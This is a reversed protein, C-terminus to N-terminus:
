GAEDLAHAANVLAVHSLAQPTNGLAEGTAPLWEEALLGVDSACGLAQEILERGRDIEGARIRCEALWLTCPIFTGDQAGTFRRLHGDEGLERELTEYTRRLRPDGADLMGYLPILLVSADLRDTGFIGVFAGREENWADELITRRARDRGEAWRGVDAGDGLRPALRVARDLALWAGLM